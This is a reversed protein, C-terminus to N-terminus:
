RRAFCESRSSVATTFRRARRMRLRGGSTRSAPCLVHSAVFSLVACTVPPVDCLPSLSPVAIRRARLLSVCVQLARASSLRYDPDLSICSTIVHTLVPFKKCALETCWAVVAHRGSFPRRRPRTAVLCAGVHSARDDISPYVGTCMQVLLVGFSFMDIKPTYRGTLVQVV